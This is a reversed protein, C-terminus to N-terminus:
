CQVNNPPTNAKLITDFEGSSSARITDYKISRSYAKQQNRNVIACEVFCILWKIEFGPMRFFRCLNGTLCVTIFGYTDFMLLPHCLIYYFKLVVCM